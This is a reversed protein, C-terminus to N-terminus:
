GGPVREKVQALYLFKLTTHSKFKHKSSALTANIGEILKGADLGLVQAVLRIHAGVWQKAELQRALLRVFFELQRAPQRAALQCRSWWENMWAAWAPDIDPPTTLKVTPDASIASTEVYSSDSNM